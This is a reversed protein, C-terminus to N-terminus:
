HQNYGHGAYLAFVNVVLLTVFTLAITPDNLGGALLPLYAFPLAIAIWFSLFQASPRVVGLTQRLRSSYQSVAEPSPTLSETSPPSPNPMTMSCRQTASVNVAGMM